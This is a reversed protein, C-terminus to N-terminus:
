ASMFVSSAECWFVISPPHNWHLLYTLAKIHSACLQCFIYMRRAALIRKSQISKSNCGTHPANISITLAQVNFNGTLRAGRMPHTSQFPIGSCNGNCGARPANSQFFDSFVQWYIRLGVKCGARPANSQFQSHPNSGFPLRFFQVGCPTLQNFHM